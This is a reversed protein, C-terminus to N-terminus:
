NSGVQNIEESSRAQAASLQESLQQLQQAAATLQQRLISGEVDKALLDAQMQQAAAASSALEAELAQPLM